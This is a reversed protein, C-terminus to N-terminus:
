RTAQPPSSVLLQEDLFNQVLASVERGIKDAPGDYEGILVRELDDRPTGGTLLEWVRGATRNLTFIRNTELHVLVVVGDDLTRALVEPHALLEDVM